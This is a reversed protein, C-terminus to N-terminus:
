ILNKEIPSSMQGKIQAGNPTEHDNIDLTYAKKLRELIVLGTCVPGWPLGNNDKELAEYWLCYIEEVKIDLTM